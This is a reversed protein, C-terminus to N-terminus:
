YILAAPHKLVINYHCYRMFNMDQTETQLISFVEKMWLIKAKLIKFNYKKGTGHVLMFTSVM